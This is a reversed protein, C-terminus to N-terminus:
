AKETDVRVPELANIATVFLKQREGRRGVHTTQTQSETVYKKIAKSMAKDHPNDQPLEEAKDILRGFRVLKGVLIDKDFDALLSSEVLSTVMTYFHVQNVALSSNSLESSKTYASRLFKFVKRLVSVERPTSRRMPTAGTNTIFGKLVETPPRHQHTQVFLVLELLREWMRDVKSNADTIGAVLKLTKLVATFENHKYRYFVDHGRSHTEAILAFTSNLLANKKGMAKVVAFRSVAVGEQNIDVFLNIIEDLSSEDTLSIEITPIAYERFDRVINEELEKFTRDGDPLNVSFEAQQRHNEGFFYEHWKPIGIEVRGRSDARGGAVFLIISELRQKGDLINYSYRTGHPEKYLFIAPIPRGQVINRMLKRRTGVKWIHGRQFVPSLNIKEENLYNIIQDIKMESNRYNM